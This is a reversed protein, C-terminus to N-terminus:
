AWLTSDEKVGVWRGRDLTVDHWKFGPTSESLEAPYDGWKEYGKKRSRLFKYRSGAVTWLTGNSKLVGYAYM